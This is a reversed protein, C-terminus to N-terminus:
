ESEVREWKKIQIKAHARKAMQTSTENAHLQTVVSIIGTDLDKMMLFIPVVDSYSDFIYVETRQAPITKVYGSVPLTVIQDSNSRKICKSAYAKGASVHYTVKVTSFLFRSSDERRVYYGDKADIGIKKWPKCDHYPISFNRLLRVFCRNEDYVKVVVGIGSPHDASRNNYRYIAIVDGVNCSTRM